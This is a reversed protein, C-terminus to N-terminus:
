SSLLSEVARSLDLGNRQLAAVISDRPTDPFMASLESVQQATPAQQRGLGAAWQQMFGASQPPPRSAETIRSALDAPPPPQAATAAVAPNTATGAATTTDHPTQATAPVNTTQTAAGSPAGRGMWASRMMLGGNSVTVSPSANLADQQTAFTGRQVVDGRSPGLLPQLLRKLMDTTRPSIRYHRTQLINSLYLQSAISGAAAVLLTAPPDSALLQILLIYRAIRNSIELGFLRWYFLTPVQRTSQFIIAFVIAFPGAPITTYGFRFGLVLTVLELVTSMATTVLLFSAFKHSGFNREVSVGTYYLLLVSIFLDSSNAFALHHSALRWVQHDRTLHPVLPVNFLYQRSIVAAAISCLCVVVVLGRTVPAGAFSM